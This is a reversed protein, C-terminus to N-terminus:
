PRQLLRQDIIPKASRVAALRAAKAASPLSRAATLPAVITPRVARRISALVPTMEISDGYAASTYRRVQAAGAASQGRGGALQAAQDPRGDDPGQQGPGAHRQGRQDRRNGNGHGTQCHRDQADLCAAAGELM